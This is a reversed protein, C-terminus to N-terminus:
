QEIGVQAEGRFKWLGRSKRVIEVELRLQDGPGVPRKFRAEDIGAFYFVSDTDSHRGM